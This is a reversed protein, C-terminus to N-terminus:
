FRCNKLRPPASVCLIRLTEHLTFGGSLALDPVTFFEKNNEADEADRRNLYANASM